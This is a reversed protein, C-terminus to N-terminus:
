HLEGRGDGTIGRSDAGSARRCARIRWSRDLARMFAVLGAPELSELESAADLDARAASLSPEAGDVPALWYRARTMLARASNPAYDLARNIWVLTDARSTDLDAEAAIAAVLLCADM